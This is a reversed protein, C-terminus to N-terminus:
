RQCIPIVKVEDDYGYGHLNMKKQILPKKAAIRKANSVRSKELDLLNHHECVKLFTGDKIEVCPQTCYGRNSSM